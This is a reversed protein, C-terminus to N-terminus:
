EGSATQQAEGPTSEEIARGPLDVATPLRHRREWLTLAAPVVVVGVVLSALEGAISAIGFSSLARNQAMVLSGFGIVTTASCLAVANSTSTLAGDVNAPTSTEAASSESTELLYRQLVNISYDAGIGFTIPLAVFNCFNLKQGSWALGGLMFSVAILLSGIAAISFALSTSVRTPRAGPKEPKVRFAFWCIVLVALLSLATARPGDAKMARAIDGALPLGGAVGASHQKGTAAQRLDRAFADLQEANWTGANLKPFVLVNRDIRGGYERLGMLLSTPIQEVRLPALAEESLSQEILDRDRPSLDQKMRPTLIERLRKAQEIANARDPPLFTELSRVQAILGGAGGRAALERVNTTIERAHEPTRALIVTPTLYRGLASDMRPGWFREGQEWSDRRRLKSLDYEIWDGARRAMGWIALTSVVATAVLVVRPWARLTRMLKRSLPPQTSRTKPALRQGIGEGFWHLLLPVLTYMAVWCLILGFAGIWGFQNFGRFDTFVLSGYSAAAALAAAATASYTGHVARDIALEKFAGARREETYRALLIIGANIGNGLVISGLFATNSNLSLISFPPLAVLGFAAVTGVFLPVGLIPLAGLSGFFWYLVGLVMSIVIVGSITLDSRLGEAEEVRTAVDGGYGLELRADFASPFGLSAVDARVRELLMADTLHGTGQAAAQILLVVNKRDPSVFRDRAGFRAKGYQAEYKDRLKQFPLEPRPDESEDEFDLGMQRTVDWDRRQEVAERLSRVDAPDMLQLAYRELFEREVRADVRVTGVLDSPYSRVREALADLFRHAAPLAAPEGVSVVVGLHRIGPLRDRLESLAQVSPAHEPLLEALDSRLNGYTQVTRLGGFVSVIVSLCVVLWRYRLLMAFYASRKPRAESVVSM